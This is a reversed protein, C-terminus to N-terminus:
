KQHIIQWIAQLILTLATIFHRYYTEHNPFAVFHDPFLWPIKYPSMAPCGTEHKKFYVEARVPIIATWWWQLNRQPLYLKLCFQAMHDCLHTSKSPNIHFFINSWHTLWCPLKMEKSNVWQRKDVAPYTVNRANCCTAMIINVWQNRPFITM